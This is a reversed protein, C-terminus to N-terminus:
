SEHLILQVSPRALHFHGHQWIAHRVNHLELVVLTVVFAKMRNTEFHVQVGLDITSTLILKRHTHYRMRHDIGDVPAITTTAVGWAVGGALSHLSCDFLFGNGHHNAGIWWACCRTLDLGHETTHDLSRPHRVHM